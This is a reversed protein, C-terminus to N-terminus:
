SSLIIEHLDMSSYKCIMYLLFMPSLKDLYTFYRKRNIWFKVFETANRAISYIGNKHISKERFGYSGLFTLVSWFMETQGTNQTKFLQLPSMMDCPREREREYAGLYM